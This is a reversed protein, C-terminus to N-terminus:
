GFSAQEKIKAVRKQTDSIDGELVYVKQDLVTSGSSRGEIDPTEGTLDEGQFFGNGSGGYGGGVDAGSVSPSSDLIAAAAAINGLVAAVGTAIAVLNYPYPVSQAQAVAGSIAKATDIAIQALAFAKNLAEQRKLKRAEAQTLKEGAGIKQQIRAMERGHFLTNIAELSKITQTGTDLLAQREEDAKQIREIREQEAKERAEDAYRDRIETLAAQQAEELITSDEGYMEAMEILSFYKDRVANEEQEQKSLFKNLYENEANELELLFANKAEIEQRQRELEAELAKQREEELKALADAEAQASAEAIQKQKQAEDYKIKTIDINAKTIETQVKKELDIREQQLKELDIGQGKLQKIFDERSKGSLIFQEEYYKEWSESMKGIDAITELLEERRAEAKALRLAYSSKGVAELAAIELDFAEQQENFAKRREEREARIEELRAKNRKAAEESAKRRAQEQEYEQQGIGFLIRGLYQFFGVVEDFYKILAVVSAIVLGIVTAIIGFPNANKLLKMAATVGEIGGKLAMSIGLGKQINSAIQELTENEGGLLVMAGTVDGVAGSLKGFEGAIGDADLKQLSKGVGEIQGNTAKLQSQLKKFEESGFKAGKLAESLRGAKDELEGLTQVSGSADIDIKIQAEEAM